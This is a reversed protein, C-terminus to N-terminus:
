REHLMISYPFIIILRFYLCIIDNNLLQYITRLQTRQLQQGSLQVMNWCRAPRPPQTCYVQRLSWLSIDKGSFFKLLLKALLYEALSKAVPFLTDIESTITKHVLGPWKAAPIDPLGMNKMLDKLNPGIQFILITVGRFSYTGDGILHYVQGATEANRCIVVIAKAVFDVPVWNLRVNTEGVVAGVRKCTQLLLNIWDHSNVFPAATHGSISSVRIIRVQLNHPSRTALQLLRESVVKTQAYGTKQQM